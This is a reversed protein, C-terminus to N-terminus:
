INVKIQFSDLLIKEAATKLEQWHQLIHSNALTNNEYAATLSGDLKYVYNSLAKIIVQREETTLHEQKLM